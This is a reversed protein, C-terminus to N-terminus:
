ENEYINISFVNGQYGLEFYNNLKVDENDLDKKM